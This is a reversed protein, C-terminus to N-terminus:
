RFFDLPQKKGFTDSAVINITTGLTAQPSYASIQNGFLSFNIKDKYVDVQCILEKYIEDVHKWGEFLVYTARGDQGNIKYDIFVDCPIHYYSDWYNKM